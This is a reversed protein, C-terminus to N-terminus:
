MIRFTKKHNDTLRLFLDDYPIDDNLDKNRTIVILSDDKSNKLIIASDLHPNIKKNATLIYDGKKKNIKLINSIKYGAGLINNVSDKFEPPFKKPIEKLFKFYKEKSYIANNFLGNLITDALTKSQENSINVRFLDCPTKLIEKLVNSKTYFNAHATFSATNVSNGVAPIM